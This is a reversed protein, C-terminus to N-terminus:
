GSQPRRDDSGTGTDRDSLLVLAAFGLMAVLPVVLSLLRERPEASAYRVALVGTGLSLAAYLISVPTHGRWRRSLRQYLHERHAQWLPAGRAARRVLTFTTDFVFPGLLLVAAPFPLAGSLAGRVACTALLLGLPLSGADGMFIRARPFNWPLFGGAAAATTVGLVGLTADSAVLGAVAFVGGSVMATLGAIGNLGDMFNFANAFGWLWFVTLPISLVGFPVVGVYPLDVGALRGPVLLAVVAVLVLCAKVRPSFARLDDRWGVFASLAVAAAACVPWLSAVWFGSAVLGVAAAFALGLGGGSPTPVTHSSRENPHAVLDRRRAARLAVGTGLLSTVVVSAGVVSLVQVTM